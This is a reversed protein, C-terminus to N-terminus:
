GVTFSRNPISKLIIKISVSPIENMYVRIAKDMTEIMKIARFTTTEQLTPVDFASRLTYMPNDFSRIDEVSFEKYYKYNGISTQWAATGLEVEVDRVLTNWIKDVTVESDEGIKTAQICTKPNIKNGYYDKVGKIM